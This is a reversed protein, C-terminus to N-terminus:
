DEDTIRLEIGNGLSSPTHNPTIPKGNLLKGLFKRKPGRRVTRWIYSTFGLNVLVLLILVEYMTRGKTATSPAQAIASGLFFAAIRVRNASKHDNVHYLKEIRTWRSHQNHVPTSVVTFKGSCHKRYHIRTGSLSLLLRTRFTIQNFSLLVNAAM